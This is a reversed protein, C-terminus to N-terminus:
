GIRWILWLIISIITLSFSIWWAYTPKEDRERRMNMIENNTWIIANIICLIIWSMKNNREYILLAAGAAIVNMNLKIYQHTLLLFLAEIMEEGYKKVVSRVILMLGLEPSGDRM